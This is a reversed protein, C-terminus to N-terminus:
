EEFPFIFLVWDGPQGPIKVTQLRVAHSVFDQMNDLVDHVSSDKAADAAQVTFAGPLHDTREEDVVRIAEAHFKKGLVEVVTKLRATDVERWTSHDLTILATQPNACQCVAGEGRAAARPVPCHPEHAFNM